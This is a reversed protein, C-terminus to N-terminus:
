RARSATTIRQTARLLAAQARVVDVDGSKRELRQEARAKAKEARAVDIDGPKEAVDVLVTVNDSAVDVYGGAVFFVQKGGDAGDLTLEGIGLEAVMRAHGPLIGMYGLAGPAQVQAAHTKAVVKAPSLIQVQLDAAM